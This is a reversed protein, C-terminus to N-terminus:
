HSVSVLLAAPSFPTAPGLRQEARLAEVVYSRITKAYRSDDTEAGPAPYELPKNWFPIALPEDPGIGKDMRIKTEVLKMVRDVAQANNSAAGIALLQNEPTLLKLADDGSTVASTLSESVTQDYFNSGPGRLGVIKSFGGPTFYNDITDGAILTQSITSVASDQSPVFWSENGTRRLLNKEDERLALQKGRGDATEELRSGLPNGIKQTLSDLAKREDPTLHAGYDIETKLFAMREEDATSRNRELRLAEYEAKNSTWQNVEDNLQKFRQAEHATRTEPDISRLAKLEADREADISSVIRIQYMQSMFKPPGVQHEVVAQVVDQVDGPAFGYRPLIVEAARAGDLHHTFFNSRHKDSDSLMAAILSKELDAPTLNNHVGADLVRGMEGQTHIWNLEQGPDVTLGGPSESFNLFHERVDSLVMLVREKQNESLNSQDLRDLVSDGADGSAKVNKLEREVLQRSIQREVESRVPFASETARLRAESTSDPAGFRANEASRTGVSAPGADTPELTVHLRSESFLQRGSDIAGSAISGGFFGVLSSAFTNEIVSTLDQGEVVGETLSSAGNGLAGAAGEAVARQVGTAGHQFLGLEAGGIAATGGAVAGNILLSGIENTEFDNGEFLRHGAVNTAAGVGAGALISAALPAGAGVTLIASATTGAAIFGDALLDANHQKADQFLRLADDAYGFSRDLGSSDFSSEPSRVSSEVAASVLNHAQDSVAVTGGFFEEITRGLGENSSYYADREYNYRERLSEPPTLLPAIEIEEQPSSALGQIQTDMDGYRTDYESRAAALEEKSLDGLVTKIAELDDNVVAFRIANAPKVEGQRAVDLIVQQEAASFNRLISAAQEPALLEGREDANANAVDGLIAASGTTNLIALLQLSVAGNELIPKVAANYLSSGAGLEQLELPMAEPPFYLRLISAADRDERTEPNALRVGLDPEEAVAATLKELLERPTDSAEFRESLSKVDSESRETGLIKGEWVAVEDPQGAGVLADNLDKYFALDASQSSSLDELGSAQFVAKGSEYSRREVETMNTLVLEIAEENDGTLWSTNDRVLQATSIKGNLVVQLARDADRGFAQSLKNPGLVELLGAREVPDLSRTVEGLSKLDQDDIAIQALKQTDAASRADSGTLLISLVTKDSDSLGPNLRIDARLDNGTRQLYAAEVQQIQERNLTSFTDRLERAVNEGSREEAEKLGRVTRSVEPDPNFPEAPPLPQATEITLAPLSDSSSANIRNNEASFVSRFSAANQFDSCVSEPTQQQLPGVSDNVEFTEVM